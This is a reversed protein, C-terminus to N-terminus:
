NANANVQAAISDNRLKWPELNFKSRENNIHTLCVRNVVTSFVLHPPFGWDDPHDQYHKTVAEALMKSNLKLDAACSTLANRAAIAWTPDDSSGFGTTRDYVGQIYVYQAYSDMESWQSFNNRFGAHSNIAACVVFLCSGAVLKAFRM